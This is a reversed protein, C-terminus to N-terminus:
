RMATYFDGCSGNYWAGELEKLVKKGVSGAWKKHIVVFLHICTRKVFIIEIFKHYLVRSQDLTYHIKM